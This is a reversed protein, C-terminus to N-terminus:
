EALPFASRSLSCPRVDSAASLGPVRACTYAESQGGRGKENSFCSGHIVLLFLLYVKEFKM